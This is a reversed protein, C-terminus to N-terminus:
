QKGSGKKRDGKRRLFVPIRLNGIGFECTDVFLRGAAGEGRVRVLRIGNDVVALVSCEADGEVALPFEVIHLVEGVAGGVKHIDMCVYAFPRVDVNGAIPLQM